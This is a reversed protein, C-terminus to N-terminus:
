PVIFPNLDPVYLFFRFTYIHAAAGIVGDQSVVKFGLACYKNCCGVTDCQMFIKLFKKDQLIPVM